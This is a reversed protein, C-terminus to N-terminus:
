IGLNPTEFRLCAIYQGRLKRTRLVLDGHAAALTEVTKLGIGIGAELTANNPRIRIQNIVFLVAFRARKRLDVRIEGTGHFFANSILNNLILGFIRQDLKVSGASALKIALTRGHARARVQYPELLESVIAALDVVEKAIPLNGREARA